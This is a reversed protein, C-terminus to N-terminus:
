TRSRRRVRVYEVDYRGGGGREEALANLGEVEAAEAERATWWIEKVTVCSRCNHPDVVTLFDDV